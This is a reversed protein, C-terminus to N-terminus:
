GYRHAPACGEPSATLRGLMEMLRGLTRETAGRNRQVVGRANAALRAASEPSELLGGVAEALHEAVTPSELDHPVIRVADASQLQQLADAFNETHPGVVMPRGLGAVEMLDSGGMAALTRGVFVVDALAYFKRLEGMTDGLFVPAPKPNPTQPKPNPTQTVPGWGGSGRGGVASNVSAGEVRESRRICAFGARHILGAVEDFREPKRPILALQLGPHREGLMKFARLIAEEEGPGTSGCVWLPRQRDIGMGTALEEAGAVGDVAANDWKLSGTVSVREAPVGLKRFREAYAEDQAGVWALSRFMRRAVPRIWGFLRVSRESLRGNVVAVPIRRAAATTVMHYWVELEVLVILDPQIRDLARRVCRSFDLPYRIVPSDPFLESARAHGTDTTASVVVELEPLRARWAAILGRVANVEGVSVAHVWVRPPPLTPSPSLPLAPSRPLPPVHGFRQGWGRRYKGTTISRYLLFPAVLLAALLHCIDVFIRM